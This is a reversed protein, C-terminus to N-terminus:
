WWKGISVPVSREFTGPKVANMSLRM